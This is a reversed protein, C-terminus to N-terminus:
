RRWLWFVALLMVLVTVAVIAVGVAILDGFESWDVRTM